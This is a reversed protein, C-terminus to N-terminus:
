KPIALTNVQIIEKTNTNSIFCVVKCHDLKWEKSLTLLYSKKISDGASYTKNDETLINDFSGHNRMVHNFMYNEILPVDGVSPDDNKQVGEINSELVVLSLTLADSCNGLFLTETSVLIKDESAKLIIGMNLDLTHKSEDSLVANISNEWDPPAIQLSGAYTRRNVMGIPLNSIGFNAVWINGQETSLDLLHNEQNPRAFSTGHVAMVILKDQFKEELESITKAAEPCNTCRWGTFDELLVRQQSPSAIIPAEESTEQIRILREQEPIDDCAIFLCMSLAIGAFIRITSKM